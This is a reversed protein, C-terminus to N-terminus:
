QQLIYELKISFCIKERRVREEQSVLSFYYPWLIFNNTEKRKDVVLYIKTNGAKVPKHAREIVRRWSVFKEMALFFLLWWCFSFACACVRFDFLWEEPCNGPLRSLCLHISATFFFTKHKLSNQIPSNLLCAKIIHRDSGHHSSRLSTLHFVFGWVVYLSQNFLTVRMRPCILIYKKRQCLPKTSSSLIQINIQESSELFLRTFFLKHRTTHTLHCCYFYTQNMWEGTPSVVQKEIKVLLTSFLPEGHANRLQVSRYGERVCKVQFSVHHSCFMPKCAYDHRKKFDNQCYCNRKVPITQEGLLVRDSFTDVDCVSFQILALDPCRVKIEVEHNWCPNLGNDLRIESFFLFRQEWICKSSIIM